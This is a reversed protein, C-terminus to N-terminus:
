LVPVSIAVSLSVSVDGAGFGSGMRMSGSRAMGYELGWGGSFPPPATPPECRQCLRVLSAAKRRARKTGTFYITQILGGLAPTKAVRQTLATGGSRCLEHLAAVANEKGKASGRRMLAVLSAVASDDKGVVEAVPKQRVLLALAGAADEAVEQTMLAGILAAVAGSEVMRVSCDPHTSLNFLATVADKKGRPTGEKLLRSLAETASPEDTIRRKYAHVASLSFLTAAANERAETTLGNILVGAISTLCGEQEMIRRKNREHISLNLIATVSNEQAISSSSCLLKQLLPIAGCEAICARNEKGSKALLRIERAALTKESESGVSLKRVLLEASRRNAESAARTSFATGTSEASPEHRDPPDYPIGQVACWHAILSRLARNPILGTHSLTQGSNPCTFHGEELWQNISSRDYTQGSSTIVPDRMLDLSIPCCFDKPIPSSPKRFEQFSSISNPSKSLLSNQESEERDEHSGFLLFRCYRAIAVVGSLVSVDNDEGPSYIHEELKEIELMCSKADRIGLWGVFAARLDDPDPSRGKEFEDLFSLIGRRLEEDRPDMFLTSRRCQRHLLELQERVDTTMGLQRLPFVDLLTAIELNLDHFHGSVQPNQILLWLRSSQTCFDLLARARYIFIYLENLCTRASAPLRSSCDGSGLYEFLVVLIKVKRVLSRSNRRQLLPSGDPCSAHAAVLDSAVSAITQILGLDSLDVPTFFAGWLPSKRRRQSSFVLATSMRFSNTSRRRWDPYPKPKRKGSNPNPSPSSNPRSFAPLRINDACKFSWKRTRSSSPPRCPLRRDITPFSQTRPPLKSLPAQLFLAPARCDGIGM